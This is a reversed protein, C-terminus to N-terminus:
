ENPNADAHWQGDHVLVLPRRAFREPMTDSRNVNWDVLAPRWSSGSSTASIVVYTVEGPRCAFELSSRGSFHKASFDLVREGAALNLAVTTELWPMQAESGHPEAGQLWSDREEERFRHAHATRLPLSRIPGGDVSVQDPCGRDGCGIVATCGKSSRAHQLFADRGGPSVLLNLKRAGEPDVFFMLEGTRLHLSRFDSQIPSLNRWSTPRRFLGTAVAAARAEGDYTVLTYRELRDKLRTFPIPWPTVAFVLETQETDSRFLDFSWYGSSLLPEGLVSRVAARDMEGVSIHASRDPILTGPEEPSLHSVACGM